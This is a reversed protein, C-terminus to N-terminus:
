NIVYGAATQANLQALADLGPQSAQVADNVRESRQWLAFHTRLHAPLAPMVDEGNVHKCWEIAIEEFNMTAVYKRVLQRFVRKAKPTHVPLMPLPLKMRKAKTQYTLKWM